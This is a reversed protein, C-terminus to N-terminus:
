VIEDVFFHQEGLGLLPLDLHGVRRPLRTGHDCILSVCALNGDSASYRRPRSPAPGEARVLLLITAVNVVSELAAFVM